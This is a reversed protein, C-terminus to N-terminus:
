PTKPSFSNNVFFRTSCSVVTMGSSHYFDSRPQRLGRERERRTNCKRCGHARKCLRHRSWYKKAVATTRSAEPVPLILCLCVEICPVIKGKHVPNADLYNRANSNNQVWRCIRGAHAYLPYPSARRKLLAKNAKNHAHWKKEAKRLM